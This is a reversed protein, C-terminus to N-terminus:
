NLIEALALLRVTKGTQDDKIKGIEILAGADKLESLRPRVQNMDNFGLINVVQRDTLPAKKRKFVNFIVERRAAKDKISHFSEISNQHINKEHVAPLDFLTELM